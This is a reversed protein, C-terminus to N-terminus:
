FFCENVKSGVLNRMECLIQSTKRHNLELEILFTQIRQKKGDAFASILREKIAEYTKEEPPDTLIDTVQTLVETEISNVVYDYKM